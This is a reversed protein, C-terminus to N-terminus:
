DIVDLLSITTGTIYDLRELLSLNALNVADPSIKHSAMNFIKRLALEEDKIHLKATFQVLV